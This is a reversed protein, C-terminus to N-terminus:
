FNLFKDFSIFHSNTKLYSAFHKKKKDKLFIKRDIIGFDISFRVNKKTYNLGAGHLLRSSFGFIQGEKVKCRIASNEKIGKTLIKPNYPIGLKHGISFRKIGSQRSNMKYIELDKDPVLHTMPIYKMASLRNYNQIPIHVNIQKNIYDQDCYFNERHISLADKAMKKSPRVGRLYVVSQLYLDRISNLNLIKLFFDINEYVIQYHIKEFNILNQCKLLSKRFASLDNINYLNDFNDKIIEKIRFIPDLKKLKNIFFGNKELLKRVNNM